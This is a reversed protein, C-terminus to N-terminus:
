LPGLPVDDVSVELWVIQDAEIPHTGVVVASWMGARVPGGHRGKAAAEIWTTVMVSIAERGSRGAGLSTRLSREWAEPSQNHLNRGTAGLAPDLRSVANSAKALSRVAPIRRCRSLDCKGDHSVRTFSSTKTNSKLRNTVHSHHRKTSM